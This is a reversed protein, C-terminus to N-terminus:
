PMEWSAVPLPLARIAEVYVHGRGTTRYGGGISGMEILGLDRLTRARSCELPDQIDVAFPKWHIRLLLELHSLTPLASM